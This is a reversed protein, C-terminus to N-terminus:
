SGCFVCKKYHHETLLKEVYSLSQTFERKDMSSNHFGCQDGAFTTRHISETEHDILYNM